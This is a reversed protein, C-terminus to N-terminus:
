YVWTSSLFLFFSINLNLQFNGFNKEKHSIAKASNGVVKPVNQFGGWGLLIVRDLKNNNIQKKVKCLIKKRLDPILKNGDNLCQM